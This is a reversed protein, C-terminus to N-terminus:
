GERHLEIAAIIDANTANDEIEVGEAKAIDLLESKSKGTLGPLKPASDKGALQAELEAVRARLAVVDNADREAQDAPKGFDPLDGKVKLASIDLTHGSEIWVTTVATTCRSAFTPAYRACVFTSRLPGTRPRTGARRPTM